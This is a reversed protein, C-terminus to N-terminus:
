WNPPAVALMIMYIVAFLFSLLFTMNLIWPMFSFYWRWLSQPEPAPEAALAEEPPREKRPSWLMMYTLAMAAVGAFGAFFALAAWQHQMVYLRFM